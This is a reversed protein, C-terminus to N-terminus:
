ETEHDVFMASAGAACESHTAHPDGTVFRQFTSMTGDCDLDANASATASASGLTKGNSDFSYLFRHPDNMRFTLANWTPTDWATPAPECRDDGNRDGSGSMGSCCSKAPTLGISEPFQCDLKMGGHTIHPTSYYYAAGKYIRDLQDIAETAKARRTYKLFAPIAVVSLIALVLFVGLLVIAIIAGTGLGGGRRAPALAVPRPM